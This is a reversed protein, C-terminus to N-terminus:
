CRESGTRLVIFIDTRNDALIMISCDTFGGAHQKDAVTFFFISVENYDVFM